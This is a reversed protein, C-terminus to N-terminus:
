NLTISQVIRDLYDYIEIGHSNDSTCEIELYKSDLNVEIKPYVRYRLGKYEYLYEDSRYAEKGKFNFKTWNLNKNVEPNFQGKHTQIKISALGAIKNEGKIEVYEDDVINQSYRHLYFNDDLVIALNYFDFNEYIRNEAPIIDEVLEKILDNVLFEFRNSVSAIYYYDGEKFAFQTTFYDYTNSRDGGELRKTTKQVGKRGDIVVEKESLLTENNPELGTKRVIVGAQTRDSFTDNYLSLSEQDLNINDSYGNMFTSPYHKFNFHHFPITVFDNSRQKLLYSRLSFNILCMIAWIWWWNKRLFIKMRGLMNKM